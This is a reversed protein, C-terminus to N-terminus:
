VNVALFKCVGGAVQWVGHLHSALPWLAFDKVSESDARSVEWRATPDFNTQEEHEEFESPTDDSIYM